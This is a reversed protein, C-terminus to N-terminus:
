KGLNEWKNVIIIIVIIIIIIIILKNIIIIIMIIIIIKNKKKIKIKLWAYLRPKKIPTTAVKRQSQSPYKRRTEHRM